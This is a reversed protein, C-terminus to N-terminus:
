RQTSGTFASFHVRRNQAWADESSSQALPVEEGYSITELRDPAIGYSLLLDRVARAREAGLAFNYENTGREDCHGELQVKVQPNSRLLEANQQAVARAEATVESSNFGFRIDGFMGEGEAMPLAGEGFRAERQAALEAESLGGDASGDADGSMSSCASLSFVALGTLLLNATIRNM